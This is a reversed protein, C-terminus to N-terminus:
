IKQQNRYAGLGKTGYFLENTFPNFIVGVVPKGKFVFAISVACIQINNIYNATGDLPDVVWYTGNREINLNEKEESVIKYKVEYSKLIKIIEKQSAVDASTVVDRLSEKTYLNKAKDANAKLINGGKVAAELAIKLITEFSTYLNKM